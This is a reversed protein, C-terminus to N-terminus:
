IAMSRQALVISQNSSEFDSLPILRWKTQWDLIDTPNPVQCPCLPILFPQRAKSTQTRGFIKIYYLLTNQDGKNWNHLPKTHRAEVLINQKDCNHHLYSYSVSLRTSIQGQITFAIVNNTPFVYKASQSVLVWVAWLDLNIWTEIGTLPRNVESTKLCFISSLFPSATPPPPTDAIFWLM